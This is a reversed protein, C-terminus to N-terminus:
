SYIGSSILHTKDRDRKRTEHVANNWHSGGTSDGHVQGTFYDKYNDTGKNGQNTDDRRSSVMDQKLAEQLNFPSGDKIMGLLHAIHDLVPYLLDIHRGPIERFAHRVQEM